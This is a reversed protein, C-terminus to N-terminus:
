TKLLLYDTFAAVSDFTHCSALGCLVALSVNKDMVELEAKTTHGLFDLDYDSIQKDALPLDYALVDYYGTDFGPLWFVVGDPQAGPSYGRLRMGYWYMGDRYEKPDKLFDGPLM